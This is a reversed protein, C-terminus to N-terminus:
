TRRPRYRLGFRCTNHTAISGVSYPQAIAWGSDIVAILPKFEFGVKPVLM